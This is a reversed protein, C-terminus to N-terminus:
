YTLVPIGQAIFDDPNRTIVTAEMFWAVGGILADGLTRHGTQRRRTPHAFV